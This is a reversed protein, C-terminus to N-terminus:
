MLASSWRTRVGRTLPSRFSAAFYRSDESPPPSSMSRCAAPRRGCTRPIRGRVRPWRASRLLGRLRDQLLRLLREVQADGARDKQSSARPEILVAVERAPSQDSIRCFDAPGPRSAQGVTRAILDRRGSAAFRTTPATHRARTPAGPLDWSVAANASPASHCIGGHCCAEIM